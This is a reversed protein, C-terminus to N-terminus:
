KDITAFLNSDLRPMMSDQAAVPDRQNPPEKIFARQGLRPQRQLFL